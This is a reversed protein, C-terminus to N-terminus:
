STLSTPCWSVHPLQQGFARHWTAATEGECDAVFIALLVATVVIIAIVIFFSTPPRHEVLKDFDRRSM